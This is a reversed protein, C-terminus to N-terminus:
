TIKDLVPIIFNLDFANYSNYVVSINEQSNYWVSDSYQVWVIVTNNCAEHSGSYQGVYQFLLVLESTFVPVNVMYMKVDQFDHYSNLKSYPIWVFFDSKM